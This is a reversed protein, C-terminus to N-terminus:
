FHSTMSVVPGPKSTRPTLMMIRPPRPRKDQGESAGRGETPQPIALHPPAPVTM